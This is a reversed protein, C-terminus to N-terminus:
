LWFFHPIKPIENKPLPRNMTRYMLKDLDKEIIQNFINSSSVIFIGGFILLLLTMYDISNTGLFYSIFSSFVVSLTLRFKILEKIIPITINTSM